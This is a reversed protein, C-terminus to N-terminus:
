PAIKDSVWHRAHQFGDKLEDYAKSSGSKVSEWTAETADKAESLQKNLRASQDRLTQLRPKAEAKTADSSTEVKNSLAHIDTDIEALQTQKETVFEAKQAFAYEKKAQALEKTAQAADRSKAEVKDAAAQVNMDPSSKEVSPKCGIAFAVVSFFTIALTKKMDATRGKCRRCRRDIV